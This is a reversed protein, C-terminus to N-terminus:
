YFCLFFILCLFDLESECDMEEDREFFYLDLKGFWDFLIILYMEVDILNFFCGDGRM